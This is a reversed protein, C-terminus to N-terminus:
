RVDNKLHLNMAIYSLAVDLKDSLVQISNFRQAIDSGHIRIFDKANDGASPRQGGLISLQEIADLVGSKSEVVSGTPKRRGGNSMVSVYDM